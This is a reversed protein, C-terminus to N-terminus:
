WWWSQRPDQHPEGTKITEPRRTSGSSRARSPASCSPACRRLRAAAAAPPSTSALARPPPGPPQATPSPRRRLRYLAPHRRAPQSPPSRLPARRPPHHPRAQRPRLRLPQPQQPLANAPLFFRYKKLLDIYLVIAKGRCARSLCLSFESFHRKQLWAAHLAARQRPEHQRRLAARQQLLEALPPAPQLRSIVAEHVRYPFADKQAM